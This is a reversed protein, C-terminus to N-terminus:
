LPTTKLHRYLDVSDKKFVQGSHAVVRESYNLCSISNLGVLACLEDLAEGHHRALDKKIADGNIMVYEFVPETWVSTMGEEMHVVYSNNGIKWMRGTVADIGWSTAGSTSLIFGLNWFAVGAVARDLAVTKTKYGDLKFVIYPAEPRRPIKAKLPTTGLYQDRFYVKAGSPESTITVEDNTSGFITACSTLGLALLILVASALINRKM